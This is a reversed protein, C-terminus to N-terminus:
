PTTNNAWQIVAQVKHDDQHAARGLNANFNYQRINLTFYEAGTHTAYKRWIGGIEIRHGRPSLGYLRHTPAKENDSNMPIAEVDVDFDLTSISGKGRANALDDTEFTIINTTM